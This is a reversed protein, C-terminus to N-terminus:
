GDGGRHDECGGRFGRKVDAAERISLGITFRNREGGAKEPMHWMSPTPGRGHTREM